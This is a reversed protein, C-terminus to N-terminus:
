PSLVYSPYVGLEKCSLNLDRDWIYIGNFHRLFKTKQLVTSFWPSPVCLTVFYTRFTWSYIGWIGWLKKPGVVAWILWNNTINKYFARKVHGNDMILPWYIEFAFYPTRSEELFFSRQSLKWYMFNDWCENKPLISSVMNKQGKTGYKFM